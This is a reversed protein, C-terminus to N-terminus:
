NDLVDALDCEFVPKLARNEKWVGDDRKGGDAM